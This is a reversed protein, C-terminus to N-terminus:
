RVLGYQCSRAQQDTRQPENNCHQHQFDPADANASKPGKQYAGRGDDPDTEQRSPCHDAVYRRAKKNGKPAGKMEAVIDFDHGLVQPAPHDVAIQHADDYPLIAAVYNLNWVIKEKLFHESHDAAAVLSQKLFVFRIPVKSPPSSQVRVTLGHDHAYFIANELFMLM